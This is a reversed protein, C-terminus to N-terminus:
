EPRTEPKGNKARLIVIIFVVTAIFCGIVALALLLMGSAAAEEENVIVNPVLTDPRWETGDPKRIRETAGDHPYSMPLAVRGREKNLTVVLEVALPAMRNEREIELGVFTGRGKPDPSVVPRVVKGNIRYTNLELAQREASGLFWIGLAGPDIDPHAEPPPRYDLFAEVVYRGGVSERVSVEVKELRWDLRQPFEQAAARGAMGTLAALAAPAALCFIALNSRIIRM